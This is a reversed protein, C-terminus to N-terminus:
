HGKGIENPVSVHYQVELFSCSCMFLKATNESLGTLISQKNICLFALEEHFLYMEEWVNNGQTLILWHASGTAIAPQQQLNAATSYQEPQKVM